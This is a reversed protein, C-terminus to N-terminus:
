WTVRVESGLGERADIAFAGPLARARERMSILGYGGARSATAAVDFGCGDDQIVLMRQGGDKSLRVSIKEAGGHRVANSVAERTIRMLAHRQDQSATISDDLDVELSVSYREALERATRHLMFGLPEDGSHGLAHVAARTEDLARDCAAIIRAVSDTPGHLAHSEMRIYALEQIVGDHLERALRRRDDLVALRSQASWYQRMEGAAGVLLLAYCGARLLDGTYLWDSYLSPFLMYNLRAFGGLACAPGLWHLLADGRSPKMTFAISAVFFCAAAVGQALPLLPHWTGIAYEATSPVYGPDLAVPLRLRAAWLVLCVAVVLGSVALPVAVSPIGRRAGVRPSLHAIAAVAVLFAGIVRVAVPVWTDLTGPLPGSLAEAAFTLGLGPVALLLLGNALILDALQRRRAFRGFVLYALLLAACADVTDLALHAPPSRYGAVLVPTWLILGTVVAGVAWAAATAKVQAGERALVDSARSVPAIGM